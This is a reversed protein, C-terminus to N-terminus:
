VSPFISFHLSPLSVLTLNFNSSFSNLPFCTAEMCLWVFSIYVGGDSLFKPMKELSHSSKSNIAPILLNHINFLLNFSSFNVNSNFVLEFM